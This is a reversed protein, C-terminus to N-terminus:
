LKVYPKLILDFSYPVNYLNQPGAVERHAYSHATLLLCAHKIPTPVQGYKELVDPLEQGIYNLVTTEASEGYMELVDDEINGDIRTHQKIDELTIIKLMDNDNKNEGM